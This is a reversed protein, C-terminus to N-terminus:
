LAQSHESGRDRSEPPARIRAQRAIRTTAITAARAEEAKAVAGHPPMTFQQISSLTTTSGQAAAAALWLQVNSGPAAPRPRSRDASGDSRPSQATTFPEDGSTGDALATRSRRWEVEGM